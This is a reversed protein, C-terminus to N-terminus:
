GLFNAPVRQVSDAQACEVCCYATRGYFVLGREIPGGCTACMAAIAAPVARRVGPTTTRELRANTRRDLAAASVDIVELGGRM